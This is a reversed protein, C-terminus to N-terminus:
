IHGGAPQYRSSLGGEIKFAVYGDGRRRSDGLRPQPMDWRRHRVYVGFVILFHLVIRQGVTSLSRPSSPGAEPGATCDSINRQGPLENSPVLPREPWPWM